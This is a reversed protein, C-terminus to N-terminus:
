FLKQHRKEREEKQKRAILIEIHRVSVRYQRALAEKNKGNFAQWIANDRVYATLKDSKPMYQHDNGIVQDLIEIALHLATAQADEVGYQQLRLELLHVLTELKEPWKPM